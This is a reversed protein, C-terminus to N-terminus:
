QLIERVKRFLLFKLKSKSFYKSSRKVLYDKINTDGVNYKHNNKNTIFEEVTKDLFCCVVNDIYKFKFVDEYYNIINQIYEKEVWLGIITDKMFSLPYKINIKNYFSVLDEFNNNEWPFNVFICDIYYDKKKFEKEFKLKNIIVEGLDEILINANIVEDNLEYNEIKKVSSSISLIQDKISLKNSSDIVKVKKVKNKYSYHSSEISTSKNKLISDSLKKSLNLGLSNNSSEEYYEIKKRKRLCFRSNSDDM